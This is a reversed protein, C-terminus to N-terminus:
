IKKEENHKDVDYDDDDTVTTVLQYNNLHHQNHHQRNRFTSFIGLTNHVFGLSQVIEVM